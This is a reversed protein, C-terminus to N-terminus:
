ATAKPTSYFLCAPSPSRITPPLVAIGRAPIIRRPELLFLPHRSASVDAIRVFILPLPAPPSQGRTDRRGSPPSRALAQRAPSLRHDATSDRQSRASHPSTRCTPRRWRLSM